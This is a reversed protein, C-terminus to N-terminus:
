DAALDGPQPDRASALRGTSVHTDRTSACLKARANREQKRGTERVVQYNHPEPGGLAKASRTRARCLCMLLSNFLQAYSRDALTDRKSVGARHWLVKV